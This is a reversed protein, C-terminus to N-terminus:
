SNLDHQHCWRPGFKLLGPRLGPRPEYPAFGRLRGVVESVVGGWDGPRKQTFLEMNPYWPSDKRGRLWRWCGDYRNLLWVPRGLAGALHAVATDAAIVLDLGMMLAATDAFDRVEGMLDLVPLGAPGDKQLSVWRIGPVEFLPALLAPNLSRRRDIAALSPMGARKNGAWVLGVKVGPGAIKAAWRAQRDERVRIYPVAAPITELRTAFALPLSLMPVHLDFDPLAGGQAVVQAVGALGSVLRVLPAPVELVVRLGRAAVMPVYRMFQLADGFGQEAHILLTFGAAPEGRWQPQAFARWGAAMPRTQWRYEYDRWGAEWDGRALKLLARNYRADALEPQLALAREYAVLADDAFGQEALAVGLNNYADAFDPQAALAQRYSVVAMPLAGQDRRLNGLNNWAEAYLPNLHLARVYSEAAAEQRGLEALAVGMNNHSDPHMPSLQVATRFCGLAEGLRGQERRVLGLNLYFAAEQGDMVIAQTILEAATEYNGRQAAIVGLMNLSGAHRPVDTARDLTKESM